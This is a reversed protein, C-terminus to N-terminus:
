TQLTTATFSLDVREAEKAGAQLFEPPLLAAQHSEHISTLALVWWTWLIRM